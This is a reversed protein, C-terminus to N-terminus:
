VFNDVSATVIDNIIVNKNDNSCEHQCALKANFRQMTSKTEDSFWMEKFSKSSIDGILGTNDYAKNHCAYVKQDAGVVPVTQMIYCRSYKRQNSHQTGSEIKYTTYVDFGDCAMKNILELQPIVTEILPTHYNIFDPVWMPSFRVNGVGCDKLKKAIEVLNNCNDKHIIFNVALDCSSSKIKSFNLMNRLIKDFNRPQVNRFRQLEEGSTYDMSVRVWRASKLVEARDGDLNQGNTIISLDIGYDLTTQMFEVINKHVLPEGGGSYTVAKVGIDKFDALVELMKNRPISDMEKMNQHMQSDIHYGKDKIRFGTSYVCFFCGHNCLNVPKIRVYLPATLNGNIFSDVKDRFHIIKYDSYKNNKM